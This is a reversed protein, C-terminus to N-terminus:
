GGIQYVLYREVQEFGLKRYVPEGEASAMLAATRYGSTRALELAAVTIASGHGRRRYAVVTVVNYVVAVGAYPLLEASCVPVGGVYGVLFRGPSEPALASVGARELFGRIEPSPSDWSHSLVEAFDAWQAGTRVESIELGSGRPDAPELPLELSRVMLPLSDAESAGAAALRAGLDPPASDPGVWWLFPRGTQEMRTLVQRIRADARAADARGPDARAADARGPDARGPDFRALAVVNFAPDALGSDSFVLDPAIELVAGPTRRHFQALAEGLNRSVAEALAPDAVSLMSNNTDVLGSEM